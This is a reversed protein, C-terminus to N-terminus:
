CMHKQLFVLFWAIIVGALFLIVSASMKKKLVIQLQAWPPNSWSISCAKMSRPRQTFHSATYSGSSPLIKCFIWASILSPYIFSLSQRRSGRHVPHHPFGAGWGKYWSTKFNVLQWRHHHAHPSCSMLVSGLEPLHLFYLIDTLHQLSWTFFFTKFIEYIMKYQNYAFSLMRSTNPYIFLM